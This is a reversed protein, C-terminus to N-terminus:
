EGAGESWRIGGKQQRIMWKRIAPTRRVRNETEARFYLTTGTIEHLNESALVRVAMSESDLQRVLEEDGGSTLQKQSYGVLLRYLDEANAADMKLIAQKLLGASEPGRNLTEVLAAYHEPWYQRQKPENLIGDGGFYVDGQGLLLMTEAALAAVESRRFLTAEHLTRELSEQDGLLQLLGERASEDLSNEDNPPTVWSPISSFPSVTPMAEGRKVWQEGTTVESTEGEHKIQVNGQVTLIGMLEVQEPKDLPDVGPSRFRKISAAVVTEQDAFYLEMSRSGLKLALTSDPMKSTVLLHGFEVELGYTDEDIALWRVGAPGILEVRPSFETEMLGRFKPACIVPTNVSITGSEGLRSWVGQADLAVILSKSGDISAVPIDIGSEPEGTAPQAPDAESEPMSAAEAEVTIDTAMPPTPLEASSSAVLPDSVETEGALLESAPVESPVLSGESEPIPMSEPAPEVLIPEPTPLMEASATAATKSGASHLDAPIPTASESTAESPLLDGPSVIADPGVQDLKVMPPSEGPPVIVDTPINNDALDVKQNGPLLPRFIQAVAFLLVAAIALSVLWPTIRSPRISGGYISDKSAKSGLGAKASATSSFGAVNPNVGDSERLRTPADFVGSDSIGVPQVSGQAARPGEGARSGKQNANSQGSPDESEITPLDDPSIGLGVGHPGMRHQSPTDDMSISSFRESSAAIREVEHDPLQYIRERLGPPIDAKNGLVMTLIQHCAAAEALNADLELCAREIESVQEGPLTSDLYEGIVNADHVPGIAEPPPAPLAPDSLRQRIKQVLQTAFGSETVKQRLIEADAPELTNDLYALLTRLTLRM